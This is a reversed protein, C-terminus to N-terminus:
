ANLENNEDQLNEMLESIIIPGVKYIAPDSDKLSM